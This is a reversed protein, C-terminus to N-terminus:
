LLNNIIAALAAAAGEGTDTVGSRSELLGFPPEDPTEPETQLQPSARSQFTLHPQEFAKAQLDLPIQRVKTFRFKDWHSM